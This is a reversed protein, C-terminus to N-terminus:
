RVRQRFLTIRMRSSARDRMNSRRGCISPNSAFGDLIAILAFPLIQKDIWSMFEKGGKIRLLYEGTTCPQFCVKTAANELTQGELVRM